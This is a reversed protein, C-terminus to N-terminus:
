RMATFSVDTPLNTNVAQGSANLVQVEFYTTTKAGYEVKRDTLSAPSCSALVSYNTDAQASDFTVRYVGAASYTVTANTGFQSTVAAAAPVFSGHCFIPSPYPGSSIVAPAIGTSSDKAVITAAGVGMVKITYEGQFAGYADTTTGATKRITTRYLGTDADQRNIDGVIQWTGGQSSVQQDLVNIYRQGALEIDNVWASYRSVLPTNPANTRRTFAADIRFLGNHEHLVDFEVVETNLAKGLVIDESNYDVVKSSGTKDDVRYVFTPTTIGSTSSTPIAEKDRISCGKITINGAFTTAGGPTNSTDNTLLVIQDADEVYNNLINFQEFQKEGTTGILFGWGFQKVPGQITNNEVTVTGFNSWFSDDAAVRNQLLVITRQSGSRITDDGIYVTNDVINSNYNRKGTSSISGGEELTMKCSVVAFSTPAYSGSEWVSTNGAIYAGGYQADFDVGFPQTTLDSLDFARTRFVKNNTAVFIPVQSKVARKECNVFTCNNVTLSNNNVYEYPSEQAFIGDAESAPTLDEIHCSQVINEKSVLGTSSLYRFLIGRAIAGGAVTDPGNSAVGNITCDQILSGAFGGWIVIGNAQTSTLATDQFVNLIKMGEILNTEAESADDNYVMIGAAYNDQCNITAKGTITVKKANFKFFADGVGDDAGLITANNFSLTVVDSTIETSNFQYTNSGSVPYHGIAVTGGDSAAVAAILASTNQAASVNVGGGYEEIYITGSDAASSTAVAVVEGNGGFKLYKNARDSAIPLEMNISDLDTVPKRISRVDSDENQQVALWLRDFDDNVEQALFDGSTQYDTLRQYAMDRYITLIEGATAGVLLTINGGGESGVGSVTYNTGEALITSGKIVVVDNKDFIEFTYPFVTQGSTATYQNRSTNSAVTM